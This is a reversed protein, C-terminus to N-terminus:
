DLAHNSKFEDCNKYKCEGIVSLTTTATLITANFTGKCVYVNADNIGVNAINLVATNHGTFRDVPNDFVNDIRNWSYSNAPLYYGTTNCALSTNTGLDVGIVDEVSLEACPSLLMPVCSASECFVAELTICRGAVM